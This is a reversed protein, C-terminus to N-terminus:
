FTYGLSTRFDFENPNAGSSLQTNYHDAVTLNLSLHQWFGYSLTSTFDNHYQGGHELDPYFAESGTLKLNKRIVWTLDEALRAYLTELNPADRNYQVQYTLGSEADLNFNPRQILHIGGGPGAQYEFDINQIRDYGAGGYTYAYYKKWLDFDSKNSIHGNNASEQGDTRQYEGNLDFTNKFFKKPDSKYPRTYVFNAHTSYDQQETANLILSTGVNIQGHWTGKSKLLQHLTTSASIEQQSPAGKVNANLEAMKQGLAILAQHWEEPTVPSWTTVPNFTTTVTNGAELSAANTKSGPVVPKQQLLASYAAAPKKAISPAPTPAKILERKSIESLPISLAKVWANSLVVRNANESVIFGGIRDGSKLHLMVAQAPVTGALGCVPFLVCCLLALVLRTINGYFPTM